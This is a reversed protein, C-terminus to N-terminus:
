EEAGDKRLHIDAFLWTVAAVALGNMVGVTDRSSILLHDTAGTVEGVALTTIVFWNVSDLLVSLRLAFGVVSKGGGDALRSLPLRSSRAQRRRRWM